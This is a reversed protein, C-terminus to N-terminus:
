VQLLTKKWWRDNLACQLRCAASCLAGMLLPLLEAPQVTWSELDKLVLRDPLLVTLFGGPRGLFNGLTERCTTSGPPAVSLFSSCCSPSPPPPSNGQGEQASTNEMWCCSFSCMSSCWDDTLLHWQLTHVLSISADLPGAELLCLSYWQTGQWCPKERSSEKRSCQWSCRRIRTSSSRM